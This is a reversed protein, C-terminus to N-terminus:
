RVSQRRACDNRGTVPLPYRSEWMPPDTDTKAHIRRFRREDLLPQATARLQLLCGLLESGAEEKLEDAVVTAREWNGCRREMRLKDGVAEISEPDVLELAWPVPCADNHPESM